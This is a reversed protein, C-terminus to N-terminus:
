PFAEGPVTNSQDRVPLTLKSSADSPGGAIGKQLTELLEPYRSALYREPLEREIVEGDHTKITYVTGDDSAHILILYEPTKLQGIASLEDDAGYLSPALLGALLVTSLTLFGSCRIRKM